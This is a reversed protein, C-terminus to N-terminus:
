LFLIQLFATWYRIGTSSRPAPYGEGPFLEGMGLAQEPSMYAITGVASGPSTLQEEATEATPTAEAGELGAHREPALKALGFDLIKVHGRQTIFINAPKIDRHVIARSHAAELGNAIQVAVDLFEEIEM